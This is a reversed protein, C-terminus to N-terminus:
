FIPFTKAKYLIFKTTSHICYAYKAKLVLLSADKIRSKATDWKCFIRHRKSVFVHYSFPHFKAMRFQTPLKFFVDARCCFMRSRRTNNGENFGKLGFMFSFCSKWMQGVSVGSDRRVVKLDEM